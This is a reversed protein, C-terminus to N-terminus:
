ELSLQFRMEKAAEDGRRSQFPLSIELKRQFSPSPSIGRGSRGKAHAIRGSGLGAAPPAGADRGLASLRRALSRLRSGSQSSRCRRCRAPARALLPCHGGGQRIGGSSRQPQRVVLAPFSLPLRPMPVWGNAELASQEPYGAPLPCEVDAPTVLLAGRIPRTAIQDWFAVTLVGASHAVLYIDGEIGALTAELAAVRAERSLRNETLPEVTISGPISAAMHTQWHEAVHDRLGPVFVTTANM